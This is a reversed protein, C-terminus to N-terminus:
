ENTLENRIRRFKKDWWGEEGLKEQYEEKIEEIDEHLQSLFTEVLVAPGPYLYNPRRKAYDPNAKLIQKYAPMRSLLATAFEQTVPLNNVSQMLKLETEISGIYSENSPSISALDELRSSLSAALTRRHTFRSWEGYPIHFPRGDPRTVAYSRKTDFSYVRFELGRPSLSSRELVFTFRTGSGVSVYREFAGSIDDSILTEEKDEIVIQFGSKQPNADLFSKQLSGRESIRQKLIYAYDALGDEFEEKADESLPLGTLPNIVESKHWRTGKVKDSYGEIGSRVGFSDGWMQEIIEKPTWTALAPDGARDITLGVMAKFLDDQDNGMFQGHEKYMLKNIDKRTEKWAEDQIQKETHIYSERAEMILELEVPSGNKYANYALISSAPGYKHTGKREPNDSGIRQFLEILAAQHAEKPLYDQVYHEFHDIAKIFQDGTKAESIGKVLYNFAGTHPMVSFGGKKNSGQKLVLEPLDELIAGDPVAKQAKIRLWYEDIKFTHPKKLTAFLENENASTRKALALEDNAFEVKNNIQDQWQQELLTAVEKHMDHGIGHKDAVVAQANTKNVDGPFFGGVAETWADPGIARWADEAENRTKYKGARMNKSIGNAAKLYNNQALAKYVQAPTWDPFSEGVEEATKGVLPPSTWDLDTLSVAASKMRLNYGPTDVPAAAAARIRKYSLLTRAVTEPNLRYLDPYRNKMQEATFEGESTDKQYSVLQKEIGTKDMDEPDTISLLGALQRRTEPANKSQDFNLALNQIELIRRQEVGEKDLAESWVSFKDKVEAPRKFAAKKMIGVLVDRVTSDVLEKQAKEDWGLALSHRKILAETDERVEYFLMDQVRKDSTSEIREGAVRPGTSSFIREISGQGQDNVADWMLNVNSEIWSKSELNYQKERRLISRKELERKGQSGLRLFYGTLWSNVRNWSDPNDDFGNEKDDRISNIYDDAYSSWFKDYKESTNKASQISMAKLYASEIQPIHEKMLETSLNEADNNKQRLKEKQYVDYGRLGINGLEKLSSGQSPMAPIQTPSLSMGPPPKGRGKIGYNVQSLYSKTAM